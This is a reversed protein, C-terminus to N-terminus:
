KVARRDIRELARISEAALASPADPVAWKRLLEVAAPSGLAEALEVARHERLGAGEAKGGALDKVIAELRDKVEAQPNDALAKRLRPVLGVGMGKFEKTARERAAFKADGLKDIMKRLEADPLAAPPKAGALVALAADPAAALKRAATLGKAADTSLLDDWAAAAEKDGVTGGAKPEPLLGWVQVVSDRRSTVLHLSDLTFDLGALDAKGLDIRMREGRTATEYVRVTHDAPHYLAVSRQDPSVAALPTKDAATTVFPNFQNEDETAKPEPAPDGLTGLLAGDQDVLRALGDKCLALLPGGANLLRAATFDWPKAPVSNVKKGDALDYLHLQTTATPQAAGGPFGGGRMNPADKAEALILSKGDASVVALRPDGAPVAELTLKPKGTAADAIRFRERSGTLLWKRDASVVGRGGTSRVFAVEAGAAM